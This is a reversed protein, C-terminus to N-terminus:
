GSSFASGAYGTFCLVLFSAQKMIAVPIMAHREDLKVEWLCFCPLLVLSITFPAIFAPSQWGHVTAGSVLHYCSRHIFLCGNSLIPSESTLGLSFLLLVSVILFVGFLDFRKLQVLLSKWHDKEM